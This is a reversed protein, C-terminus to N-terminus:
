APTAREEVGSLLDVRGIEKLYMRVTDSTAAARWRTDGPNAVHHGNRRVLADLVAEADRLVEEDLDNGSETTAAADIAASEASV